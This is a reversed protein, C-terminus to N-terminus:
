KLKDFFIYILPIRNLQIHETKLVSAARQDTLPYKIGTNM